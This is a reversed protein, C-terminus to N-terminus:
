KREVILIECASTGINEASHSPVVPLFAVSGAKQTIEMSKGDPTYLRSQCDTLPYVALPLHSHWKDRQGVAWTAKIVLFQDNQAILKYVAPDAVYSPPASKPAQQAFAGCAFVFLALAAAILAYRIKPTVNM